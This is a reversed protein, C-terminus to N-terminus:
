HIGGMPHEFRGVRGKMLFGRVARDLTAKMLNM